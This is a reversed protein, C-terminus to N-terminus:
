LTGLFGAVADDYAERLRDRATAVQKRYREGDDVVDRALETLRGGLGAEHVPVGWDPQGVDELFYRLKPHSVLSLIPTGLGFPIMGAHGRMGVVLSSRAYTALAEDVGTRFLSDVPVRTGHAAYLDQAIREDGVTHAAIRVQAFREARRVFADLERLVDAYADKFRLSSRDYAVNLHIVPRGDGGRRAGDQGELVRAAPGADLTGLFTTPCPTYVVKEALEAPLLARVRDISGHNRLGVMGAREVTLRLSEAFRTGHIEQGEFLNYGVAVLALPVSLARLSADPVNWQWGSHGNPMTDPLFLGGGGVLLADTEGARAVSEEGFVQHVHFGTWSRVPRLAGVSERVAVPLLEDGFNGLRDVYFAAHSLRLGEPRTTAAVRADPTGADLRELLSRSPVHVPDARLAETAYRRAGDLDGVVWSTDAQLHRAEAVPGDFAGVAAVALAEDYRSCARLDRALRVPHEIRGTEAAVALRVACAAAFRGERSLETARQLLERQPLDDAVLEDALEPPVDRTARRYHEALAPDVATERALALYRCMHALDSTAYRHWAQELLAYGHEGGHWPKYRGTYHLVRADAPVPSGPRSARKVWNDTRPLRDYAGDLAATLVGQDHRDLEYDGALGIADLRAVFADSMCARGFALLGSNLKRGDDPDFLQPVAALDSEREFLDDIPAVVVMDTDLTVVRDYDRLRFADLIFYAKTYLYNSEDGKAYREYPRPDVRVFRAGPHLTEVRAVHEARLGDHLVVVDARAAPNSLHLSKLLAVFGPFYDDDVFSVFARRPTATTPATM